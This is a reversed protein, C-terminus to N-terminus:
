FFDFFLYLSGVECDTGEFCTEVEQPTNAVHVKIEATFYKTEVIWENQKTAHQQLIVDKTTKFGLIRDILNKRGVSSDGAFVLCPM